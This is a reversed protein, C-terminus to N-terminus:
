RNASHIASIRAAPRNDRGRRAASRRSVAGGVAEVGAAGASGAVLSWPRGSLAGHGQVHQDRRRQSIDDKQEDDGRQGLAPRFVQTSRAALRAKQARRQDVRQRQRDIAGGPREVARNAVRRARPQFEGRDIQTRRQNKDAPPPEQALQHADALRLAHGRDGVQDRRAIALRVGHPHDDGNQGHDGGRGIDRQLQLGDRQGKASEGGVLRQCRALQRQPYRDPQRQEGDQEARAIQIGVLLVVADDGGDCDLRHDLQHRQQGHPDPHDPPQGIARRVHHRADARGLARFPRDLRPAPQPQGKQGPHRHHGQRAHKLHQHDLIGVFAMDADGAPGKREVQHCHAQEHQGDRHGPQRKQRRAHVGVQEYQRQRMRQPLIHQRHQGKQAPERCRRRHHDNRRQRQRRHYGVVDDHREPQAGSFARGPGHGFGSVHAPQHQVRPPQRDPDNQPQPIQIEGDRAARPRQRRDPQDRKGPHRLNQGRQHAREIPPAGAPHTRDGPQDGARQGPKVRQEQRGKTRADHQARFQHRLPGQADTPQARM